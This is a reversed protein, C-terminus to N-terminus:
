NEPKGPMEKQEAGETSEKQRQKGMNQQLCFSKELGKGRVFGEQRKVPERCM